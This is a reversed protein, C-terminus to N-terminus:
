YYFTPDEDWYYLEEPLNITLNEDTLEIKIVDFYYFAGSALALIVTLTFFLKLKSRM